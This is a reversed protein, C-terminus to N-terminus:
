PLLPSITTSVPASATTQSCSADSKRWIVKIGASPIHFSPIPIRIPASSAPPVLITHATPSSVPIIKQVYVFGWWWAQPFGSRAPPTTEPYPSQPAPCRSNQAPPDAGCSSFKHIYWAVGLRGAPGPAIHHPRKTPRQTDAHPKIGIHIGGHQPSTRKPCPSLGGRHKIQGHPGADSQSHIQIPRQMM